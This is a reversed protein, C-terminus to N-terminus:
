GLSPLAADALGDARGSREYRDRHVHLARSKSGTPGLRAMPSLTVGTPANSVFAVPCTRLPLRRHRVVLQVLRANRRVLRRITVPSANTAFAAARARVLSGRPACFAAKIQNPHTELFHAQRVSMVTSLAPMQISAPNAHLVSRATRRSTVLIAPAAIQGDLRLTGEPRALKVASPAVFRTNAPNVHLVPRATRRSTALTANVAIQRNRRPTSEPRALIATPPAEWRTHAPNAHLVLTATRRSAGLIARVAIERARRLTGEPRALTATPPAEWRTNAPNVHLVLTATRRSAGLIACVAIEKARRQTGEPRVLTATPPAEWLINAPNM